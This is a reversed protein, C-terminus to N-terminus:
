LEWLLVWPKSMTPGQLRWDQSCRSTSLVSDSRTSHGRCPLLSFPPTASTAKAGAEKGRLFDPSILSAFLSEFHATNFMASYLTWRDLQPRELTVWVLLFNQWSDRPLKEKLLGPLRGQPSKACFYLTSHSQRSPFTLAEQLSPSTEPYSHKWASSSVRHLWKLLSWARQLQRIDLLAWWWM